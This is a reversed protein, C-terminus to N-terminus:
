RGHPADTAPDGSLKPLLEVLLARTDALAEVASAPQARMVRGATYRMAGALLMAALQSQEAIREPTEEPASVRALRYEIVEALEAEIASFRELQRQMLAPSATIARMRAALLDHDADADMMAVSVITTAEAIINPDNSAIFARVRQEDLRPQATGIVAADKTAFHNFF